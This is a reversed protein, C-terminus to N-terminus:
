KMKFYAVISSGDQTALSVKFCTGTRGTTQWNQVFQGGTTDYRLSTGGTTTFDVDDATGSLATCAVTAASFSKVASTATIETSGAFINFKLPVTSGSKVTNIVNNMDVPRYFGNLTWALVTYTISSSASNGAKDTAQATVTHSGVATGYGSVACAGDLGSLADSANCAPAAPVSGFYYSGGDTPGGVLGVSPNTKDINIGSATATASVNGANDTCTGSASQGAGESGLTADTTCSAIGSLNDTGSFSVTVDTNNWGNANAGPSASASASPATADRKITVTQKTASGGASSAECDYSTAAQDATVNQNVCGTKVLSSPSENETVTWTLTVNSKFWGNDGDPATPNLTYSISPPSPDVISYTVSSSATLGGGDTYSCSATQDGIGDSSYPGTIASLTAAFSSNTDETDTVNCTPSLASGKDYSAGGTVGSISIQPPTNAPPPATVNVTFTAPALTFTAGTTNATQSVSVTASGVGVPTVTLTKTDGCSTFTVSSPSVTAAATNNSSVSLTLITSGTLNCGNKGDGNTPTVYLTTTGNSGGVNLAMVEAVADISGDLNNSIDDKNPGGATPAMRTGEQAPAVPRGSDSCAIGLAALVAAPVLVLKKM